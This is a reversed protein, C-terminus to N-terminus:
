LAKVVAEVLESANFPKRYFGQAGLALADQELIASNGTMLFFKVDPRRARVKKLLQLGDMHPMEIDSLVVCEAQKKILNWAQLGDSALLIAGGKPMRPALHRQLGELMDENDDVIIVTPQM